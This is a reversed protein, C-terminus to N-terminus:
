RPELAAGVAFRTVQDRVVPWWPRDDFPLLHDAEIEMLSLRGGLNQALRRTDVPRTITDRTGQVVLTPATSRRAVRVAARCILQLQVLASTPITAERRLREQIFPDSLDIDPDIHQFDWRVQPHDFDAREYPKFERMVHRLLPLAIARRDAIRIFPALLVLRDPARRAAVHIAIAGGMSYGLLITRTYRQCFDDWARNAADQWQARNVTALRSIGAGFGPLLIGHADIGAQALHEGLPRLEKPSGMFGHILLAGVESPREASFVFPEHAADTYFNFPADAM